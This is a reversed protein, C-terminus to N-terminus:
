MAPKIFRTVIDNIYNSGRGILVGTLIQGFLPITATVGLMTYIIDLRYAICIAVGFILPPYKMWEAKFQHIDSFLYETLGEIITAMVMFIALTNM